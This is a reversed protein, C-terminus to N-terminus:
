PLLGRKVWVSLTGQTAEDLDDGTSNATLIIDVPNSFDKIEAAFSQTHFLTGSPAQFVNIGDFYRDLEGTIGLNITYASISGGSFEQNHKIVISELFEGAQISSITVQNTAASASLDSFDLDIRQWRVISEPLNAFSIPSPLNSSNIIGVVSTTLDIQPADGDVGTHEHGAGGDFKVTLADARDKLNDGSAGVVSSNWAPIDGSASNIAKGIFSAASLHERQINTITPGTAANALDIVAVTGSNTTRSLFASNFTVQNATQGNTVSL